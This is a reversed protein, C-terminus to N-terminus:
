RSKEKGNDRPNPKSKAEEVGIRRGHLDTGNLAQIAAHANAAVEMTVFGFGRSQRTARDTIILVERVQGFEEFLKKLEDESTTYSLNGVFLKM